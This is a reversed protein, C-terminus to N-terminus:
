LGTGFGHLKNSLFCSLIICTQTWHRRCKNRKVKNIVGVVSFFVGKCLERPKQRMNYDM